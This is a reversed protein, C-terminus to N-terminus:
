SEVKIKKGEKNKIRTIIKLFFYSLLKLFSFFLYVCILKSGFLSVLCYWSPIHLVHERKVTGVQLKYKQWIKRYLYSVAIILNLGTPRLRVFLGHPYLFFSYSKYTSWNFTSISFFWLLYILFSIQDLRFTSLIRFFLQFLFSQFSM